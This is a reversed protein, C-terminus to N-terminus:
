SRRPDVPDAGNGHSPRANQVLADYLHWCFVLNRSQSYWTALFLLSGL